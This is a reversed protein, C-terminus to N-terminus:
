ELLKFVDDEDSIGRSNLVIENLKEFSCEDLKRNLTNSLETGLNHEFLKKVTKLMSQRVKEVGKEKEERYDDLILYVEKNSYGAVKLDKKALELSNKFDKFKFYDISNVVEYYSKNEEFFKKISNFEDEFALYYIIMFTLSEAKERSQNRDLFDLSFLYSFSTEFIKSKLKNYEYVPLSDKNTEEIIEFVFQSSKNKYNIEEIEERVQKKYKEYTEHFIEHPEKGNKQEQYNKGFFEGEKYGYIIYDSNVKKCFPKISLKNEKFYDLGNKIFVVFWFWIRKMEKKDLEPFPEHYKDYDKKDWGEAIKFFGVEMGGKVDRISLIYQGALDQSNKPFVKLLFNYGFSSKYKDYYKSPKGFFYSLMAYIEPIGIIDIERLFFEIELSFGHMPKITLSKRRFYIYDEDTLQRFTYNSASTSINYKPLKEVIDKIKIENEELIESIEAITLGRDLYLKKVLNKLELM